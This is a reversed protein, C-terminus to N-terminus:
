QLSIQDFGYNSLSLGIKSEVIGSLNAQYADNVNLFAPVIYGGEDYDIKMMQSSIECRKAQDITSNATKYLKNYEPNDFHTSSGPVGPLTSQAVQALYPNYLWYQFAFLWKHYQPGYYTATDLKSLKVTVGAKAANQAFVQAMDNFQHIDTTTLEITLGDHGAAKLLSKAQPIDQQRELSADFCPDYPSFVDSGPTAEGGLANSILQPRDVMLRMAQRVRVDDFPAQDVRMTFPTFAGSASRLIKVTPASKLTLIDTPTIAPVANLQGSTLANIAASNEAFDTIIVSDLHPLGKKWYNPNKTFKSQRMPTFSEYVFAGTGVPNKVDFDTPAIFLFYYYTAMQEALTAYPSLYPLKITLDDVKEINAVDIPGLSSKANLPKKPDLIRQLTFIVDDATLEKGNHFTVGQRLKIVWETAKSNPTISEALDYQIEANVDLVVLANYLMHCRAAQPNNLAGSNPDLTDGPTGGTIGVTLTGGSKPEGGATQNATPSNSSSCGALGGASFLLGTAAFGSILSRRSLAPLGPKLSGTLDALNYTAGIRSSQSM